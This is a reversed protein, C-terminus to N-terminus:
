GEISFSRPARAAFRWEHIRYAAGFEVLALDGHVNGSTANGFVQGLQGITDFSTGAASLFLTLRRKRAEFHGSGGLLGSENVTATTPLPLGPGPVRVGATVRGDVKPIWVYPALEFQWRDVEPEIEAETSSAIGGVFMTVSGLAWLAEALRRMRWRMRNLDRHSVRTPARM